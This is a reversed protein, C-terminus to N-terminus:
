QSFNNQHKSYEMHFNLQATATPTSDEAKNVMTSARILIGLRLRLAPNWFLVLTAHSVWSSLAGHSSQTSVNLAFGRGFSVAQFMDRLTQM